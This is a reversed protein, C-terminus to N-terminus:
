KSISDRIEMVLDELRNRSRMMERHHIEKQTIKLIEIAVKPDFKEGLHALEGIIEDEIKRMDDM